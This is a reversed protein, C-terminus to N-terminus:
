LCAQRGSAWCLPGWPVTVLSCLFLFATTSLWAQLLLCLSLERGQLGFVRSWWPRDAAWRTCSTKVAPLGGQLGM